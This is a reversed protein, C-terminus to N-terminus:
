TQVNDPRPGLSGEPCKNGARSECTKKVKGTIFSATGISDQLYPCRWSGGHASNENFLCMPHQVTKEPSMPNATSEDFNIDYLMLATLLTKSCSVDFAVNPEFNQMGELAIAITKHGVMSESRTPPGHNASVIHKNGDPISFYSVMARWQQATKTLAYNPGQLSSLGNLVRLGSVTKERWTNSAQVMCLSHWFPASDYRRKADMAAEETVVHVTAPSIIYSIATYQRKQCVYDIILDMGVGALVNKEGDLYALNCIVLKKEPCLGAIWRALEPAHRILDAGAAGDGGVQPLLM